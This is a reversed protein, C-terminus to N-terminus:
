AIRNANEPETGFIETAAELLDVRAPHPTGFLPAAALLSFLLHHGGCDGHRRLFGVILQEECIIALPGQSIAGQAQFDTAATPLFVSWGHVAATMAVVVFANQQWEPGFGRFEGPLVLILDGFAALESQPLTAAHSAPLGALTAM